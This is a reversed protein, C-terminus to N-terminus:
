PMALIANAISFYILVGTADAISTVLPTSATAPDMDFRSLLFPLLMGILSGVIVILIMSLAIVLAIEKGGRFVGIVAIAAAMSLGLLIAVGLERGFIKGWDSVAIDGTALARIMLTASQAGANGGSAILIPLFFMLALNAAITDEFHAIGAGSFINGFVLLMLWSIRARYLTPVSATAVSTDLNTITAVRHFDDTAEAELVDLADDHTIIGVLHDQDDIVPLAIMDYHAIRRAAAVEDDSVRIAHTNTDMIDSINAGHPATIIDQLRVTGLLKRNEDVIYARNITEADPAEQRLLTLAATASIDRPLAAYESTMVSGATGESYSTLQRIDEREAQALAPMLTERQDESLKQYLDARDDAKMEMVVAALAARPIVTALLSQYDHVLYSFIDARRSISAYGLARWAAQPPLKQLAAAIDAPHESTFLNSIHQRAGSQLATEIHRISNNM